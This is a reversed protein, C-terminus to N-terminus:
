NGGNTLFDTLDGFEFDIEEDIFPLEDTNIIHYPEIILSKHELLSNYLYNKLISKVKAKGLGKLILKKIDRM